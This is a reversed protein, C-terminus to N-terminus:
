QNCKCYVQNASYSKKTTTLIFHQESPEQYMQYMNGDSVILAGLILVKKKLFTYNVVDFEGM